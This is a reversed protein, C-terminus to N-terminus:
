LLLEPVRLSDVPGHGVGGEGLDLCVGQFGFVKCGVSSFGSVRIKFDGSRSFGVRCGSVSL